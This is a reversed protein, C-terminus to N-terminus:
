KMKFILVLPRNLLNRTITFEGNEIKIKERYKFGFIGIEGTIERTEENVDYKSEFSHKRGHKPKFSVELNESDLLTIKIYEYKELFDHNGLRAEVCEYEGVYPRTLSKVTDSASVECAPLILLCILMTLALAYLKKKM